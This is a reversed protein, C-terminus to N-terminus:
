RLWPHREVVPLRARAKGLGWVAGAGVASLAILVVAHILRHGAVNMAAAVAGAEAKRLSPLRFRLYLHPQEHVATTTM